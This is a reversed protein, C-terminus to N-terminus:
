KKAVQTALASELRRLLAEARAPEVAALDTREEPDRALDFLMREGRSTRILKYTGDYLVRVSRDYRAGYRNVLFPDVDEEALSPHRVDPLPEGQVDPPVDGGTVTLVTPLVDILQVPRADRGRLRDPGPFKVALPVHLVPEYLMQGIHGMQDHEGLFEGHDATV